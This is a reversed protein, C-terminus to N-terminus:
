NEVNKKRNSQKMILSMEAFTYVLYFGMCAFLAPKNLNKGAASIYIFAAGACAFLKILISSYTNRLFAQTNSANMGKTLLHMSIVTVIYIFLNGGILVQWDFGLQQLSKRFVLILAGSLLFIIVLPIFSKNFMM